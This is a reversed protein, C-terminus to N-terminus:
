PKAVFAAAEAAALKVLSGMAINVDILHLGWDPTIDGTVDSPKSGGGMVSLELYTFQDRDVCEGQLFELYSVFPTTVRM